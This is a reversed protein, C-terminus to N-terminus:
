SKYERNKYITNVLSKNTPPFSLSDKRQSKLLHNLGGYTNTINELVIMLFQLFM